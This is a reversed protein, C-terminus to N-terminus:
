RQPKEWETPTKAAPTLQASRVNQLFRKWSPLDTKKIYRFFASYQATRQYAAYVAPNFIKLTQVQSKMSSTLTVVEDVLRNEIQDRLNVISGQSGKIDVALSELRASSAKLQADMADM